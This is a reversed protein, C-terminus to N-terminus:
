NEQIQVRNRGLDKAKYLAMDARRILDQASDKDSVLSSTGMSITVYPGVPSKPHAICQDSISTRLREAFVCAQKVDTNTLIVAFEEGGYRAVIDTGERVSDLLIDAVRKLCKDGEVHGLADNYVKFYDVDGLILSLPSDARLARLIETNICEDFYRRNFAGTLSDTNSLVILEEALVEARRNQEELENVLESNEYEYALARMAFQGFRRATSVMLLYWGLSVAALLWNNEDPTFILFLVAPIVIPASFLIFIPLSIAYATVAGALLFALNAMLMVALLGESFLALYYLYGGWLVGTFFISLGLRVFWTTDSKQLQNCRAYLRGVYVRYCAICFYVAVALLSIVPDSYGWFTYILVLGAIASSVFASISQSFLLELSRAYLRTDSVWHMRGM